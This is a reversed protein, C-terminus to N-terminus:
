RRRAAAEEAVRMVDPDKKLIQSAYQLAEADVSVAQLVIARDAKMSESAHQLSNGDREVATLIVERNNKVSDTAYRLSETNISVAEMVFQPDDKLRDDAFEFSDVDSRIAALVITPDSKMQNSAHQLSDAYQRVAALVVDMKQKLDDSVYELSSGNRRVARLVTDLDSKLRDSAYMIMRGDLTMAVWLAWKSDSYKSNQSRLSNVVHHISDSVRHKTRAADTQLNSLDIPQMNLTRVLDVVEKALVGATTRSNPDDSVLNTVVRNSFRTLAGERIKDNDHVLVEKKYNATLTVFANTMHKLQYLDVDRPVYKGNKVADPNYSVVAFQTHTHQGLGSKVTDDTPTYRARGFDALVVASLAFGSADGGATQVLVNELKVDRHAIPFPDEFTHLYELATAVSGLLVLCQRYAETPFALMTDEFKRMWKFADMEYAPFVMFLEQRNFHYKTYVHPPDQEADRVLEIIHHEHAGKRLRELLSVERIAEIAMAYYATSATRKVVRAPAASHRIPTATYVQGYSGADIFERVAEYVREYTWSAYGDVLDHLRRDINTKTSPMEARSFRMWIAEVDEVKFILHTHTQALSLAMAVCTDNFKLAYWVFFTADRVTEHADREIMKYDIKEISLTPSMGIALIFTAYLAATWTSADPEDKLYARVLPWVTNKACELLYEVHEDVVPGYEVVIKKTKTPPIHLPFLNHKPASIDAAHARGVLLVQRIRRATVATELHTNEIVRRSM